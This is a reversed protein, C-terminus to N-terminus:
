LGLAIFGWLAGMGATITLLLNRSFWAVTFAAIGALLRVDPFVAEPGIPILEPLVLAAMVAPPVYELAQMVWPDLRVREHAMFFAARFFFAAAAMGAMALWVKAPEIVRPAVDPMNEV